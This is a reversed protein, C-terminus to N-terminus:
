EWISELDEISVPKSPKYPNELIRKEIFAPRHGTDLLKEQDHIRSFPTIKRQSYRGGEIIEAKLGGRKKYQTTRIEGVEELQSYFTNVGDKEAVTESSEEVAIRYLWQFFFYPVETSVPYSDPISVTMKVPKRSLPRPFLTTEFDSFVKKNVIFAPYLPPLEGILYPTVFEQNKPRTGKFVAQVERTIGGIKATGQLVWRAPIESLLFHSPDYKESLARGFLDMFQPRINFDYDERMLILHEALADISSQGEPSEWWSRLYFELKGSSLSITKIM